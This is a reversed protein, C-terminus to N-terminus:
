NSQRPYRGINGGIGSYFQRTRLTMDGLNCAIYKNMITASIIIEGEPLNIVKDVVPLGEPIKRGNGKHGDRAGKGRKERDKKDTNKKKEDNSNGAGGNGTGAEGTENVVLTDKNLVKIDSLKLKESKLGFLMDAFKNAKAREGSLEKKLRRNEKELEERRSREAALERELREVRRGLGNFHDTAIDFVRRLQENERRLRENEARLRSVEATEGSLPRPQRINIIATNLPM